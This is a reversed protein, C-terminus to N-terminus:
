NKYNLNIVKFSLRQQNKGVLMEMKPRIVIGEGVSGNPYKVNAWEQLIDSSIDEPFIGERIVQVMPLSLDKCFTQLQQFGLYQKLAISYLNFVQIDVNKNGLPNGQIKPGYVEAQIAMGIPIKNLLDYKYALSWLLNNKDEKMSLNRSCVHFENETRIYTVSSGDCKVSGYYERNRLERIMDPVTQFNPEDTKPILIIPFNGKVIGAISPHIPKEYKKINLKETVDIGIISAVSQPKPIILCESPAGKFRCFNVRYKVREMFKYEEIEPLVSDPLIVVCMDWIKFEGKKVVGRWSGNPYQATALEIKDAGDIAELMGIQGVYAQGM